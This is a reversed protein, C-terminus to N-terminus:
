TQPWTRPLPQRGEENQAAILTIRSLLRRMFGGLKAYGERFARVPARQRYGAPNETQAARRGHEAVARNGDRHGTEPQVSNLFRNMACTPDYPLYVHHVDKGFASMARESGTPTM